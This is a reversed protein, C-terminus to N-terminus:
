HVHIFQPWVITRCCVSRLTKEDRYDFFGDRAEPVPIEHGGPDNFRNSADSSPERSLPSSTADSASTGQAILRESMAICIAVVVSGFFQILVVPVLLAAADTFLNNKRTTRANSSYIYVELHWVIGLSLETLGFWGAPCM